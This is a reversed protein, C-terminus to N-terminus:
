RASREVTERSNMRRLTSVAAKEEKERAQWLQYLYEARHPQWDVADLKTWRHALTRSVGALAAVESLRVQGSRLLAM